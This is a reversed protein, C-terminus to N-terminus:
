ALTDASRVRNSLNPDGSAVLVLDGNLVGDKSISGTRYVNTHFRYDAGLLGMTSGETVIKTVSGPVFLKFENLAYLVKADSLSYVEIGFLAHQYEPRNIIKAIKADLTPAPQAHACVLALIQVAILWFMRLKM